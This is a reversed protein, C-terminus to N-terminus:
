VLRSHFLIALSNQEKGIERMVGSPKKEEGCPVLGGVVAVSLCVGFGWRSVQQIQCLVVLHGACLHQRTRGDGGTGLWQGVGRRLVPDVASPTSPLRVDSGAMCQGAARSSASGAATVCGAPVPHAPPLLLLLAKEPDMQLYLSSKGMANNQDTYRAPNTFM